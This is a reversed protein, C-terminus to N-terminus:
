KKIVKGVKAGTKILYVGPSYNKLDIVSANTKFLLSGSVTYVEVVEGKPNDINVIGDTPNPNITFSEVPIKALATIACEDCDSGAPATGNGMMYKWPATNRYMDEKGAPVILHIAALDTICAFADEDVTVGALDTYHVEITNLNNCKRFANASITTVTAPIDIKTIGSCAFASQGISGSGSKITVEEIAGRFDAWPQTNYSFDTM